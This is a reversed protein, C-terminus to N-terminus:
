FKQPFQAVVTASLGNAVTAMHDTLQSAAVMMLVFSAISLAMWASALFAPRGAARTASIADLPGTHSPRLSPHVVIAAV